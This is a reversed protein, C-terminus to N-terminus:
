EKSLEIEIVEKFINYPKYGKYVKRNIIFSPTGTLNSSRFENLNKELYNDSMGSLMCEAVLIDKEIFEYAVEIFEETYVVTPEAILLENLKEFNGYENICVATKLANLMNEDNTFEIPKIILKILGKDFFERKLLPFDNKLFKRCFGCNYSSYMFLQLKATDSGYVIDLEKETLPKQLEAYRWENKDKNNGIYFVSIIVLIFVIAILRKLRM